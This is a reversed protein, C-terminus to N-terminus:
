LERCSACDTSTSPPLATCSSRSSTRRPGGSPPTATASGAAAWGPRHLRAIPQDARLRPRRPDSAHDEPGGQRRGRAPRRGPEVYRGADPVRSAVALAAIRSMGNSAAFLFSSDSAHAAAERALWDAAGAPDGERARLYARINPRRGTTRATPWTIGSAPWTLDIDDRRAHLAMRLADEVDLFLRPIGPDATGTPLPRRTMVSSFIPTAAISGCTPIGRSIASGPRPRRWGPKWRAAGPGQSSRHGGHQRRAAGRRPRSRRWLRGGLRRIEPDPLVPQSPDVKVWIAM